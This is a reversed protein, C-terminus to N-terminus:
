IWINLYINFYINFYEFSELFSKLFFNYLFLYYYFLVYLGMRVSSYFQERVVAAFLGRGLLVGLGETKYLNYYARSFSMNVANGSNSSQHTLQMRTKVHDPSNMLGSVFGASVGGCVFKLITKYLSTNEEMRKLRQLHEYQQQQATTTATSM